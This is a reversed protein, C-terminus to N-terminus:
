EEGGGLYENLKLKLTDINSEKSVSSGQRSTKCHTQSSKRRFSVRPTFKIEDSSFM